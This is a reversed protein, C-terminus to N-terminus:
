DELFFQFDTEKKFGLREYLHHASNDHAKQIALGKNDLTVCLKKAKNILAVGISKGRYYINVFLDNLLYM